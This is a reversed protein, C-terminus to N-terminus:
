QVRSKILIQVKSLSVVKKKNQKKPREEPYFHAPSWPTREEWDAKKDFNM